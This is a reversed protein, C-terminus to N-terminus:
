PNQRERISRIFEPIREYSDVWIVSVGIKQFSESEVHEFLNRLVCEKSDKAKALSFKRPLIAYNRIEPYQRHTVDILRRINPDEMSLGVFLGTYRGLQSIQTMNSWKYPDSYESHYEDESFVFNGINGKKRFAKPDDVMGLPLVGHVHYCPLAGRPIRDRGSRVTVCSVSQERLKEDLVDDYNYNVIAQVGRIDREARSLSVLEDLLESSPLTRGSRARKGARRAEDLRQRRRGWWRFSRPYLTRAIAYALRGGIEDKIARAMMLIPKDIDASKEFDKRIKLFAEWYKEKVIDGLTGMASEVKQTMMAVTLSHILEAWSPLGVSRSVGAGVYVILGKHLYAERLEEKYAENQASVGGFYAKKRYEPFLTVLSVSQSRTSRRVPAKASTKKKRVKKAM